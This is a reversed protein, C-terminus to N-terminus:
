IRKETKGAKGAAPAHASLWAYSARRIVTEKGVADMKGDESLWKREEREMADGSAQKFENYTFPGAHPAAAAIHRDAMDSAQKLAAHTDNELEIGSQTSQMFEEDRPNVTNAKIQVRIAAEM